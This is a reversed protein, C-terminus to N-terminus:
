RTEAHRSRWRQELVLITFAYVVVILFPISIFRGDPWLYWLAVIGTARAAVHAIGIWHQIIWSLPIWMLSTLIGVSLPLSTHDIMFFPIAIGFVVLSSAVAYFFLRDFENSPKSRDLFDEGTFKSILIALYVISGTAIFLAMVAPFPPLTLGAIGVALWAILGALPTALFRHDAFEARQEELSRVAAAPGPVEGADVDTM